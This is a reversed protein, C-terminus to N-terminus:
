RFDIIETKKLAEDFPARLDIPKQHDRRSPFVLETDFRRNILRENLLKYALGSISLLRIENNKTEFLTIAKRDFDVQKWNLGLLEGQRAGTALSLM